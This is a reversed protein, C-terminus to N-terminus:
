DTCMISSTNTFRNWWDWEMCTLVTENNSLTVNYIQASYAEFVPIKTGNELTYYRNMQGTSYNWEELLLKYEYQCGTWVKIEKLPLKEGGMEIYPKSFILYRTGNSDQVYGKSEPKPVYVEVSENNITYVTTYTWDESVYEGWPKSYDPGYTWNLLTVDFNFWRNDAQDAFSMNVQIVYRGDNDVSAEFGNVMVYTGNVLTDESRWPLGGRIWEGSTQNLMYYEWHWAEVKDLRGTTSNWMEYAGYEYVSRSTVNYVVMEYTGEHLNVTVVIELDSWVTQNDSWSYDNHRLVIRIGDADAQLSSSGEAKAEVIFWKGPETPYDGLAEGRDDVIKIDVIPKEISIFRANKEMWQWDRPCLERQSSFVHYELYLDTFLKKVFRGTLEITVNGGGISKTANLFQYFLLDRPAKEIEFYQRNEVWQGGGYEDRRLTTNYYQYLLYFGFSDDSNNYLALIRPQSYEPYVHAYYQCDTANWEWRTVNFERRYSNWDEWREELYSGYIWERTMITANPDYLYNSLAKDYVWGGHYVRYEEHWGTVNVYSKMGWPLPFVVSVNVLEAESIGSVDFRIIFTENFGITHILEHDMDMVSATYTGGAMKDFFTAVESWAGGVAVMRYTSMESSWSYSSGRIYNNKDDFVGLDVNYVGKPTLSNFQGTIVFIYYDPTETVYTQGLDLTFFEATEGHYADIKSFNQISSYSNWQGSLVDYSITLYASINTAWMNWRLEMRGLDRGSEFLLKPVTVNAKVATNLMVWTADGVQYWLGNTANLCFLEYHARPGFEWSLDQYTWNYSRSENYLQWWVRLEPPLNLTSPDVYIQGDKEYYLVEKFFPQVHLTYLTGGHWGGITIRFRVCSANTNRVRGILDESTFQVAHSAAGDGLDFTQFNEIFTMNLGCLDIAVGKIKAGKDVTANFGTIFQISEIDVCVLLDLHDVAASSNSFIIDMADKTSSVNFFGLRRGGAEYLVYVGKPSPGGTNGGAQKPNVMLKHLKNPSWSSISATVKICYAGSNKIQSSLEKGNLALDAKEKNIEFNKYSAIVSFANDCLDFAVANILAGNDVALVLGTLNIIASPKVYIQIGVVDVSKSGNMFSVVLGGEIFSFNFTDLALGKAPEIKIIPNEEPSSGSGVPKSSEQASLYTSSNATPTLMM